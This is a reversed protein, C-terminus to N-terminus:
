QKFQPKGVSINELSTISLRQPENFIPRRFRILSHKRRSITAFNEISGNTQAGNMRIIAHCFYVPIRYRKKLVQDCSFENGHDITVSRVPGPFDVMSREFGKLVANQSSNELRTTVMLRTVRDFSTLAAAKSGCDGRVTDMELHGKETRRNASESRVEISTGVAQNYRSRLDQGRKHRKGFNFLQSPQFDVQRQYIWHYITHPAYGVMEPFWGLTLQETVNRNLKPTLISHRGRRHRCTDAHDQAIIACYDGEPCRHLEHRISIRSRGLTAAIYQITHHQM